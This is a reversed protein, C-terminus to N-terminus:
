CQSRFYLCFDVYDRGDHYTRVYGYENMCVCKREVNHVFTLTISYDCGDRSHACVASLIIKIVCRLGNCGLVAM